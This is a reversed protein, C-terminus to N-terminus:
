SPTDGEAPLGGTTWGPWRSSNWFRSSEAVGGVQCVIVAQLGGHLLGVPM